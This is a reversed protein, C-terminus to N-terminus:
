FFVIKNLTIRNTCYIHLIHATTHPSDRLICSGLLVAVNFSLGSCGSTWSPLTGVSQILLSAVQVRVAEGGWWWRSISSITIFFISGTRWRPHSGASSHTSVAAVECLGALSQRQCKPMRKTQCLYIYLWDMGASLSISCPYIPYSNSYAIRGPDLSIWSTLRSCLHRHM